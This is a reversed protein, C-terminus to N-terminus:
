YSFMIRGRPRIASLQLVAARSWRCRNMADGRVRLGQAARTGISVFPDGWFVGEPGEPIRPNTERGRGIVGSPGPPEWITIHGGLSIVDGEGRCSDRRLHPTGSTIGRRCCGEFPEDYRVGKLNGRGEGRSQHPPLGTEVDIGERSANTRVFAEEAAAAWHRADM